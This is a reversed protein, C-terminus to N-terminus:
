TVASMGGYWTTGDCAVWGVENVDVVLAGNGLNGAADNNVPLDEGGTNIIWLLAGVSDAEPPLELTGTAGNPDVYLINSTIQTGALSSQDFTVQLNGNACDVITPTPFELWGAAIDVKGPRAVSGGSSTGIAGATIVVDGGAGSDGTGASADGAAGATIAVDGGAGANDAGVNSTDAGAGAVLSAAGGAGGAGTAGGGTHAGGASATLGVAGGAGGAATGSAAGGGGSSLAMAGGAGAVVAAAGASGDGTKINLLGGTKATTASAGADETEAYVDSGATDTAAAFASIAANDLQLGDTDNFKFTMPNLSEIVLTANTVLPTDISTAGTLTTAALVGTTVTGFTSIDKSADVVVAKSATVTGATVGDLYQLETTSLATGDVILDNVHVTMDQYTTKTGTDPM